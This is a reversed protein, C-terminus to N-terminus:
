QAGYLNMELENAATQASRIKIKALPVAGAVIM